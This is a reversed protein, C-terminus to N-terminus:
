SNAPAPFCACARLCACAFRLCAPVPLCQCASCANAPAQLCRWSVPWRVNVAKKSAVSGYYDFSLCPNAGECVAAVPWRRFGSTVRDVCLLPMGKEWEGMWGIGAAVVPEIAQEEREVAQWAGPRWVPLGLSLGLAAVPGGLRRAAVLPRQESALFKGMGKGAWGTPQCNLVLRLVRGATEQPEPRILRPVFPEERLHLIHMEDPEGM